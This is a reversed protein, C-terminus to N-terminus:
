FFNAFSISSLTVFSVNIQTIFSEPEMRCSKLSGQFPEDAFMGKDQSSDAQSPSIISQKTNKDNKGDNDNRVGEEASHTNLPLAKM